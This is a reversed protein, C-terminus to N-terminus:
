LSTRMAIQRHDFGLHVEDAPLHGVGLDDHVPVRSLSAGEAGRQAREFPFPLASRRTESAEPRDFRQGVRARRALLGDAVPAGDAALAREDVCPQRAARAARPAAYRKGFPPRAHDAAVGARFPEDLVNVLQADDPALQLIYLTRKGVKGVRNAFIGEPARLSRDFSRTPIGRM